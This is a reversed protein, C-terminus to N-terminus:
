VWLDNSLKLKLSLAKLKGNRERPRKYDDTAIVVPEMTGDDHIWQVQNSVVLSRLFVFEQETLFDSNIEIFREVIPERDILSSGYGPSTFTTGAYSGRVRTYRKRNINESEENRKTFNQYDWGGASNRFALRVNDNRCDQRGYVATNYMYYVVSVPASISNQAEIKIYRWLPYSSPHLWGSTATANLNAPYLPLHTIFDSGLTITFAHPAGAADVITVVVKTATTLGTFRVLDLVGYDAERVPIFVNTTGAAIGAVARCTDWRRDTLWNKTITGTALNYKGQMSPKYGESPQVTGNWVKISSITVAGLTDPDDTLVNGVIWAEYLNVSYDVWGENQPEATQDELFHVVTGGIADANRLQPYGRLNAMLRNAPNPPKYFSFTNTGDSVVVKFQFGSQAVNTSSAVIMLDQGRVTPSFPQDTITIAM